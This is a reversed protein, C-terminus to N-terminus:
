VTHQFASMVRGVFTWITLAITKGSTVYLQSVQVMFIFFQHRWVTTSSFVGSLGKSPLSILGTLRLPFWGQSSEPLVLASAWTNQDDPEFLQSMTHQHQSLSLASSPMLPHSPQIADSICHVHVQAFQSIILSLSAQPAATWPAVFLQVHSPSHVFFCHIYM